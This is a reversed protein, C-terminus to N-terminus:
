SKNGEYATCAMIPSKTKIAKLKNNVILTFVVVFNEKKKSRQVLIFQFTTGAAGAKEVNFDFIHIKRQVDINNCLLFNQSKSYLSM